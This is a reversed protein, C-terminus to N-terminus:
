DALQSVGWFIHKEKCKQIEKDLKEIPVIRQLKRTAVCFGNMQNEYDNETVYLTSVSGNYKSYFVFGKYVKQGKHMLVEDDGKLVCGIINGTFKKGNALIYNDFIKNIKLKYPMSISVHEGIPGLEQDNVTVTLCSNPINTSCETLMGSPSHIKLGTKSSILQLIEIADKMQKKSLGNLLKSAQKNLEKHSEM